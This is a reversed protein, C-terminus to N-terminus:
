LSVEMIPGSYVHRARVVYYIIALLMSGGIALVSWNMTEVTPNMTSPWFSFFVVITVYIIAYGNIATGIIGPCHFPGWVLKAGPVNVIDDDNENYLSIDGRIRRYFLLVSVMLYSLYIGSVAMSVIDEMATDSGINILSLLVAVTVTLLIASIPLQKTSSIKSLWQWGPVGRDRSFSWIQRSAAALLGMLSCVYITIVIACMALSGALSDTAEMFIGMFNYGTITGLKGGLDAGSCFMMVLIMGFGLSGNIGVSIMLANPIVTSANAVEESMHVAADGGAFAFACNTMGVFWSLGQTAFGGGNQFSLFVQEKTNHDAMYVVPIIIGFFGLIHLALLTTEIRPLLNGGLLNVILSLSLSGWVILTGQWPLANYVNNGLIAAGQIMKGTLFACAAFASQWGLVAFWGTIFSLFKQFRAPSLMAAWHYQGGATPAMSALESLVMFNAFCGVWGFIYAYIAGGSGGGLLGEWTGLITCSFGLISLIGFNRKLVPKKGMRQLHVDDRERISSTEEGGRSALPTKSKMEYSAM